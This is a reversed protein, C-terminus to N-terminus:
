EDAADSTYLLCTNILLQTDTNFSQLSKVRLNTSTIRLVDWQNYTSTNSDLTSTNAVWVLDNSKINNADLNTLDAKTFATHQVDEPRVFGATKFVEPTNRDIGAQTYDYHDFTTSATYDLPKSYM